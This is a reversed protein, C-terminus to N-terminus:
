EEEKYHKIIADLALKADDVRGTQKLKDIAVRHAPTVQPSSKGSGEVMTRKQLNGVEAKLQAEKQQNIPQQQRIYRAYVIDSAAVLGQPDDSFRKDQMLQGIGQTLPHNNNWGIIQGSQNKVFADPYTDM